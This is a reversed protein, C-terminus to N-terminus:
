GDGSTGLCRQVEAYVELLPIGLRGAIARCAEYEPKARLPRGAHLAVKVPVPGYATDIERLERELATRQVGRRRVGLTTTERLLLGALEAERAPDCIVSLLTGPRGKKMLVPALWADAAGAGLLREMVHGYLEPNMDDINCSLEVLEERAAEPAAQGLLVRLANPLPGERSGLGYGIREVTLAPRDTYADVFTRLLVAGTPTTAEFPMGGRRTPVGRLLEATAPAPVPLLGHACRVVGAGLEVSSCLVREVGLADLALAGGVIDVVADVAGLEHFHVREVPCGHVAAEAEALPGFAQRALTGARVPLGARGIWGLIEELHRARAAPAADVQVRTGAVGGRAERGVRLAYGDLPLRALAARLWAEEVGLDLLAGLHMDGSIGAFCDYYLVRV